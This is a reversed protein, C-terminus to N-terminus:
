EGDDSSEVGRRTDGWRTVGVDSSSARRLADDDVRPLAASRSFAARCHILRLRRGPDGEFEDSDDASGGGARPTSLRAGGGGGGRRM